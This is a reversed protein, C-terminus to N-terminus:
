TLLLSEFVLPGNPTFVNTKWM